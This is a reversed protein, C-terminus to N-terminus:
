FNEHHKFFWDRAIHQISKSCDKPELQLEKFDEIHEKTVDQIIWKLYVSLSKLEIPKNMEKLYEIGQTCRSETVTRRIIEQIAELKEASLDFKLKKSKVDRGVKAHKEGKIKLWTKSGLANGNYSQHIPRIVFGEGIGDVGFIHKGIPCCDEIDDRIKTFLDNLIENMNGKIPDFDLMFKRNWIKHNTWVRMDERHEPHESFDIQTKVLALPNKKSDYTEAIKQSNEIRAIGLLLAFKEGNNVAVGSHIGQGAYEFHIQILQDDNTRANAAIDMVYDRFEQNDYRFCFGEHDNGQMIHRNRSQFTIENDHWVNVTINTGHVKVTAEFEIEPHTEIPTHEGDILEYRRTGFTKKIHGHWNKVNEISPYKIFPKTTM